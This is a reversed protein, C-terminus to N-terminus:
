LIGSKIKYSDIQKNISEIFADIEEIDLTMNDFRVIDDERLKKNRDEIIRMKEHEIVGLGSKILDIGELLSEKNYKKLM